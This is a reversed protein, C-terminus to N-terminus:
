IRFRQSQRLCAGSNGGRIEVVVDGSLKMSCSHFMSFGM